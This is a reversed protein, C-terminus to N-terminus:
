CKGAPDFITLAQAVESDDVERRGLALLIERVEKARREATGIREHLEALRDTDRADGGAPEVTGALRTLDATYVAVEQELRRQEAKLEATSQEAQRRTQDITEALLRGDTGIKRFQQVVFQELEEAPVSPSPCSASGHKKASTCVYYRYLRAGNKSTFTHMMPADCAACFLLGRLMAGMKNRVSYNGHRGNSALKAQVRQWVDFDVIAAHEGNFLESKYPLKGIYLPNKLAYHITM